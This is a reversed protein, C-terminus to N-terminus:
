LMKALQSAGGQISTRQMYLQLGEIGGLESGGGARGPGGHNCVAFVCGPPISAGAGKENAVVLRGLYPALRAVADACFARDDSYLTSVLSGQGAALIAEAAEVTGDYPLLTAVPAFVEVKHFAASPDKASEETAQLLIPELFCGQGKEVGVFEDRQPDGFVREAAASLTAVGERADTLQRASALPGMRVDKNSPDGIKDIMVGLREILADRVEDLRESPVLIRRTATCKQGAKQTIETTCDRIALDFLESGSEVDPGIIAANLSDAEVNVRVSNAVVVDHMRIRRGTDASGTFAIVDQSQVHDLLDGVPGSVFSLAGDPLLGSDILIHAIREAVVTSSTAPKAVTPMGALFAVALKGVMGWAPFNFANIQIAVGSRPVWVDQSRVKAGRMVETAEGRALWRKDGLSKSLFAYTALVATAGDIDFKADGRTNGGNSVALAILEERHEHLLKAMAKLCEGRQAFTLARVAPGGVSRAHQVAQDLGTARRTQAVVAGTAPNYLDIPDGEGDTWAGALHSQLQDTM